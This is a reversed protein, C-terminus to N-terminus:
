YIIPGLSFLGSTYNSVEMTNQPNGGKNVYATYSAFPRKYGNEMYYVTGDTTRIYRDFSKSDRPINPCVLPANLFRSSPLGYELLLSESLSAAKGNNGIFYRGECLFLSSGNETNIYSSLQLEPITRVSSSLGLEAVPSFSPLIYTESLNKVMYVTASNASKILSGPGYIYAGDIIAGLQESYITNIVFPSIYLSMLDNWSPIPRKKTSDVYFITSDSGKILRSNISNSNDTNLASLTTSTFITFSSTQLWKAPDNLLAKGQQTVLYFQSDISDKVLGVFNEKRSILSISADDLGLMDLPRFANSSFLADSLKYFSGNDYLMKSGIQRNLVLVGNRIVPDGYDMYSLGAELLRNSSDTIGQQQLSKQDFVERKKGSYVYFTKGTTTSYLHTVYPGTSLMSLLGDSLTIFSGCSYGYDSVMSCTTFPLKIGANVFYLTGDSGGVVHGLVPQLSKSNLYEDTVFRIPGMSSFDNLVSADAIPYKKDADVLYVTANNSTRVLSGTTLGFWDNFTRWFNRNGYASCGDGQGYLNSIAAQNPQYPTYTYLAATAMTEIQVESYGCGTTAVNWYIQNRGVRKSSPSNPNYPWWAQNMNDLYYRFLRASERIQLSFSAYSSDCQAGSPGDPCYAGMAYLYQNYLPWDDTVLGQEKQLTVILAKPSINYDQAAEWIIQAASKGGPPSAQGGYNSQPATSSPATKAVEVYDKLCTFIQTGTPSINGKRQAYVARTTTVTPGTGFPYRYTVNQTGYTDCNSMKSNLFVQIQDPSLSTKDTFITDDIIRGPQWDSGSVALVSKCLFGSLALGLTLILLKLKM